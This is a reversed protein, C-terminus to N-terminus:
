GAGDLEVRCAVCPDLSHVLRAGLRLASAADPVAAGLLAHQLAGAPHFNWETPAVIRYHQVRDGALHVQHILLGRANDVWALGSGDALTMAGVQPQTRGALLLALERLRAVFRPLTRAAPRGPTSALLADGQLRALAGTEAPAGRWVPQRSFGADAAAARALELLWRRDAPPLLPPAKRGDTGDDDILGQHLFRATTTAGAQAWCRLEPWTQIQLWESAPCGWAADALSQVLADHEPLGWRHALAGRAAAVASPSPTEDLWRPWQLLTHWATERVMEAAVSARSADLQEASPSEGAAAACALRSATAQSRGCLSFLLPVAAEAEARSRGQLLAGAVDPRTSVTRVGAIRGQDLRLGVRLEGELAM